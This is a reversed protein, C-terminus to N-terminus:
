RPPGPAAPVGPVEAESTNRGTGTDAAATHCLSREVRRRGGAETPQGPLLGTERKAKTRPQSAEQCLSPVLSCFPVAGPPSEPVPGSETGVRGPDPVDAEDQRGGGSAEVIRTGM